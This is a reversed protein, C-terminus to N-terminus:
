GHYDFIHYGIRDDYLLLYVVNRMMMMIHSLLGHRRIDMDEFLWTKMFGAIVGNDQGNKKV